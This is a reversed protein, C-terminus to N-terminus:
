VGLLIPLGIVNLLKLLMTLDNCQGSLMKSLNRESISLIKSLEKKDINNTYLHHTIRIFIDEKMGQIRSDFSDDIFDSFDEM